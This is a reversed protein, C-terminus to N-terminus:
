PCEVGCVHPPLAKQMTYASAPMGSLRTMNWDIPRNASCEKLWQQACRMCALPEVREDLEQQEFDLAREGGVGLLNDVDTRQRHCFQGFVAFKNRKALKDFMKGNGVLTGRMQYRHAGADAAQDNGNAGIHKMLENANHCNAM